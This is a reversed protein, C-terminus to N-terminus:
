YQVIGSITTIAAPEWSVNQDVELQLQNDHYRFRLIPCFESETFCIRVEYCHQDIWAGAAAVPEDAYARLNTTGHLWKRHGIEIRHEGYVNTLLLTNHQEDFRIAARILNLPNEALTYAQGSSHEAQPAIAAGHPVLLALQALKAQLAAHAQPNAPIATPHLGPLLHRWVNDLVIQMDRLGSNMILVADQDPMVICYQGFAGDGRYCNHQCRWFQYGYGLVWDPNTQTNSNDSVAQTTEAIWAAPVIQRGHWLGQQLYLQGFRAIDETAIHLGTGGLSIGQPDTEWRPNIIGLPEFLRPGLYELLTQGTLKTIIASLMYTAGTNYVFWSGPAHEVPLSLFRRAWAYDEGLRAPQTITAKPSAWLRFLSAQNGRQFVHLTTDEHHGTNMSLLHRVSMAQLHASPNAPAEAPFFNLVPDDVMLLGEAVALGIATSTFSKSLSYLSHPTHPAYPQWYGEAAVQGHRLLVFTQVADLPHDHQELAEVFAHIATSSIGVAEPTTRPLPTTLSAPHNSRM